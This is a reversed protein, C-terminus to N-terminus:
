LICRCAIKCNNKTLLIVGGASYVKSYLIDNKNGIVGTTILEEIADKLILSENIEKDKYHLEIMIAM